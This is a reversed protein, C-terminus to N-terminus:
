YRINGSYYYGSHRGSYNRVRDFENQSKHDIARNKYLFDSIVIFKVITCFKNLSINYEVKFIKPHSGDTVSFYFADHNSSKSDHLILLLENDIDSQKFSTVGYLYFENNLFSVNKNFNQFYHNEFVSYYSSKNLLVFKCNSPLNIIEYIIKEHPIDKDSISLYDTTITKHTGQVLEISPSQVILQFPEDDKQSVLIMLSFGSNYSDSDFTKHESKFEENEFSYFIKFKVRDRSSESDDHRYEMKGEDIDSQYFISELSLEKNNRYLWGHKPIETVSYFPTAPMRYRLIEKLLHENNLHKPTILAKGGEQVVLEKITILKHINFENINLLSIMVDTVSIQKSEDNSQSSSLYIEVILENNASISFENAHSGSQYYINRFTHCVISLLLWIPSILLNEGKLLM